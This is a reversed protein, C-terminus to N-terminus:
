IHNKLLTICMYNTNTTPKTACKFYGSHMHFKPVEIVNSPVGLVYFSCHGHILMELTKWLYLAKNRDIDLPNGLLRTGDFANIKIKQEYSWSQM